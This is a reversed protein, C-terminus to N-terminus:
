DDHIESVPTDANRLLLGEGASRAGRFIGELTQHAKSHEGPCQSTMQLRQALHPAEYTSDNNM